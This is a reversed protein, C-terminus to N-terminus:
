RESEVKVIMGAENQFIPQWSFGNFPAYILDNTELYLYQVQLKEGYYRYFEAEDTIKRVEALHWEKLAYDVNHSDLIFQNTLYTRRGALAPIVSAHRLDQNDDNSGIVDTFSTVRNLAQLLELRAPPYLAYEGPEGLAYQQLYYVSNRLTRPALLLLVLIVLAKGLWRRQWWSALMLGLPITLALAAIIFFNFSNMGGVGQLFNLGIFTWIVAGSLFFVLNKGGLTRRAKKTVLLGLLRWGYIFILSV